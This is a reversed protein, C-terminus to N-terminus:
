LKEELTKTMFNNSQHIVTPPVDQNEQKDIKALVENIFEYKYDVQTKRYIEMQAEYFETRKNKGYKDLERGMEHFNESRKKFLQYKETGKTGANMIKDWPSIYKGRNKYRLAESVLDDSKENKPQSSIFNRNKEKDTKYRARNLVKLLQNTKKKEQMNDKFNIMGMKNRIKDYMDALDKINRDDSYGVLNKGFLKRQQQTNSRGDGGEGARVPTTFVPSTQACDFRIQNLHFLDQKFDLEDFVDEDNFFIRKMYNIIKAEM